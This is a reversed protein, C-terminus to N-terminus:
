IKPVCTTVINSAILAPWREFRIHDSVDGEKFINRM